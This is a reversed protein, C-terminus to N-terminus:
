TAPSWVRCPMSMAPLAPCSTRRGGIADHHIGAGAQDAVALQDDDLMGLFPQGGVRVVLAAQDRPRARRAPCTIARM